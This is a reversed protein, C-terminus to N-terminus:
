RGEPDATFGIRRRPVDPAKTVTTLLFSLQSVHQILKAPNGNVYGTFIMLAPESCSIATVEMLVTQGFHTLLLAVDHEPDLRQQYDLIAAKVVSLLAESDWRPIEVPM